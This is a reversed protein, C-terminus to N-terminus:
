FHPGNFSWTPTITWSYGSHTNEGSLTTIFSVRLGFNSTANYSAYGGTRLYKAKAAADHDHWQEEGSLDDKWWDIGDITNTYQLVGGAAIRSSFFYGANLGYHRQDLSHEHHNEVFAYSFSGALYARPLIPDLSRGISIGIPYEHLSKGVSVHGLTDYTKLPIRAGVSPTIAFQKWSLMYEALLSADQISGHFRGDDNPGEAFKGVYKSSVYAGDASLALGRWVGYGLSFEVTEGYINGLYFHNGPGGVYGTSPDTVGDVDVSFLHDTIKTTQYGVSISGAGPNPVWQAYATRPAFAAGLVAVALLRYFLNLSM